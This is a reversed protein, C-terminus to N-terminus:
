FGAIADLPEYEDEHSNSQGQYTTEQIHAIYALADLLDDHVRKSPFMLM